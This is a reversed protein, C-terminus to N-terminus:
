HLQHISQLLVLSFLVNVQKPVAADYCTLFAGVTWIASSEFRGPLPLYILEHNVPLDLRIFYIDSFTGPPFIVPEINVM